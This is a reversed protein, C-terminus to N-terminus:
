VALAEAVRRTVAVAEAPALAGRAIRAALTEGALWEMALYAPGGPVQGHAVYRVIGPHSLSALVAAERAFREAVVPDAAPVVKLAVEGGAHRDAARLVVGM